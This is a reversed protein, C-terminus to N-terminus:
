AGNTAKEILVLVQVWVGVFLHLAHYQQLFRHVLM